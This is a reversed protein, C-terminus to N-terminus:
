FWRSWPVPPISSSSCCWDRLAEMEDTKAIPKSPAQWADIAQSWGAQRAGSYLGEGTGAATNGPPQRSAPKASQIRLSPGFMEGLARRQAKGLTEEKVARMAVGHQELHHEKATLAGLAAGRAAGRTTGPAAGLTKGLTDGDEACLAEELTEGLEAGTAAGLAAGLQEQRQVWHQEWYKGMKQLWHQGGGKACLATGLSEGLEAGLAAGQAAGLNTGLAAGLATGLTDVGEASLTAGLTEGREVGLARGLQEGLAARLTEGVKPWLAAGLIKHKRSNSQKYRSGHQRISGTDKM